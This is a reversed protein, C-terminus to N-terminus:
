KNLWNMIEKTTKEQQIKEIDKVLDMKKGKQKKVYFSKYNKLMKKYEKKSIKKQNNIMKLFREADKGELVPTPKILTNM